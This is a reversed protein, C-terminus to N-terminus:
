KREGIHAGLMAYAEKVDAELEGAGLSRTDVQIIWHLSQSRARALCSNYAPVHPVHRCLFQTRRGTTSFANPTPVEVPFREGLVSPIWPRPQATFLRSTLSYRLQKDYLVASGISASKVFGADQTRIFRLARALLSNQVVSEPSSDDGWHRVLSQFSGKKACPVFVTTGALEFVDYDGARIYEGPDERCTIRELESPLPPRSCATLLLLLTTCLFALRL